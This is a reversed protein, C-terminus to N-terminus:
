HEPLGAAIEARTPKEARERNRDEWVNRSLNCSAARPAVRRSQRLAVAVLVYVGGCLSAVIGLVVERETLGFVSGAAFFTAEFSSISIATPLTLRSLQELM